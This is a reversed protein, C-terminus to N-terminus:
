SYMVCYTYSSLQSFQGRDYRCGMKSIRYEPCDWYQGLISLPVSVLFLLSDTDFM